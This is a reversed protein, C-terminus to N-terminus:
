VNPCEDWGGLLRARGVINIVISLSQRTSRRPPCFKLTRNSHATGDPLYNLLEFAARTGSRNTVHYSAPLAEFVRLVEDTGIDVVRDKDANAFVIWGGAYTGSCEAQGTVAMASPCLSVPLNRMVAESRALNIAGLFRTTEVRLRNNHLISQFPPTVVSLTTALVVLTILLEILTLGSVRGLLSMRDVAIRGKHVLM